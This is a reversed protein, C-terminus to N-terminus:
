LYFLSLLVKITGDRCGVAFSDHDEPNFALICVLDSQDKFVQMCKWKSGFRGWAWLQIGKKSTSLAYPQTPHIALSLLTSNAKFSTSNAKFSTVKQMTDKYNYVSIVDDAGVVFWGM